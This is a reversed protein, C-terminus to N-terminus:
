GRSEVLGRPLAEARLAATFGSEAHVRAFRVGSRIAAAEWLGFHNRYAARYRELLGPTVRQLRTRDSECDAFEAQVPWDPDSEETSFPAFLLLQSAAQAAPALVQRPDGPHLLDTLLIRFSGARWPIRDTAPPRSGGEPMEPLDLAEVRAPDIARVEDGAVAHLRLAAGSRGASETCFALLELARIAKAPNLQMSASRDVLIEVLPSSERHHLKLTYQDSRAYARWNILRPDDGPYYHRHDRFELSSGSERHLLSGSGGSGSRLPLSLVTAIRRMEARIHAPDPATHAPDRAPAPAPSV